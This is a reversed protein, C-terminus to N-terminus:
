NTICYFTVCCQLAIISWFLHKFFFLGKVRKGEEKGTKRKGAPPHGIARTGNISFADCANKFQLREM